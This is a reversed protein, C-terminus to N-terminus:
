KMKENWHTWSLENTQIWANWNKWKLDKMEIRSNWNMWSLEITEIWANKIWENWGMRTLQNMDMWANWANWKMEIWKKGVWRSDKNVMDNKRFKRGSMHWASGPILYSIIDGNQSTLIDVLVWGNTLFLFCIIAWIRVDSFSHVHHGWM